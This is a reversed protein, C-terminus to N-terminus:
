TPITYAREYAKPTLPEGRLLLSAENAWYPTRLMGRAVAVLDAKEERIVLDALKPDELRGVAIV